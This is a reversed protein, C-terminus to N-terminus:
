WRGTCVKALFRVCRINGREITKCSRKRRICVKKVFWSKFRMRKRPTRSPVTPMPNPNMDFRDWCRILSPGWSQCGNIASTESRWEIRLQSNKFRPITECFLEGDDNVALGQTGIRIEDAGKFYFGHFNYEGLSGSKPLQGDPLAAVGVACPSVVDFREQRKLELTGDSDPRYVLRKKKEIVWVEKRREETDGDLGRAMSLSASEFRVGGDFSQSATAELAPSQPIMVSGPRVAWGTKSRLADNDLESPYSISIRQEKPLITGANRYHEASKYGLKKGRVGFITPWKQQSLEKAITQGYPKLPSGPHMIDWLSILHFFPPKGAQVSMWPYWPALVPGPVEAMTEVVVNGALVDAETPYWVEAGVEQKGKVWQSGRWIQVCLVTTVGDSFCDVAVLAPLRGVGDRRAGGDDLARADACQCLWRPAGAHGHVDVIDIRSSSGM